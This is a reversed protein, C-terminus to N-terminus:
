DNVWEFGEEGLIKEAVYNSIDEWDKRSKSYNEKVQELVDEYHDKISYFEGADEAERQAKLCAGFATKSTLEDYIDDVQEVRGPSYWSFKKAIEVSAGSERMEAYATRQYLNRLSSTYETPLEREGRMVFGVTSRPIGTERSIDAQSMREGIFGM